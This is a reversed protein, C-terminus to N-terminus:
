GGFLDGTPWNTVADAAAHLLGDIQGYTNGTPDSIDDRQNFLVVWNAGDNRRVMLTFTGPLSGDHWTNLGAGATRVAWGLGYWSGNATVGTAPVAFIQDVTANTLLPYGSTADFIRAFRALDPATSLWGGHADMNELNFGGYPEMVNLPAGPQRMNQYLNPNSVYYSVEGAQRSEMQSAGLVTNLINLPALVDAQIFAAYTQQTVAEIIRGLLLYGYNSYNVMTGPAFDLSRGTMFTIIDQQGIPLAIGQAAAIQVDNFMPDFTTDRNWGGQHQLLHLVTIDNTRADAPTPLSILNVLNDTLNLRGQQVLLMIGASTLPKALSAIRFLSDPQVPDVDDYDWRYGRAYVLRSDKTVALAASSINHAQMFGQVTDDFSKLDPNADGAASWVRFKKIWVGAFYRTDAADYPEIVIPQYDHQSETVAQNFLDAPLWNHRGFWDPLGDKVWLAAFFPTGNIQYASVSYVRYGQGGWNDFESQYESSTLGHRAVWPLTSANDWVSIYFPSAGPVTGVPYGDVGEPRFGASIQSDVFSQYQASSANHIGQYADTSALWTAAFKPVGFDLYGSVSIPKFGTNAANTFEAQYRDSDINGFQYWASPNGDRVFIGSLTAAQNGYDAGSGNSVGQFWIARYGQGALQDFRAQYSGADLDMVLAHHPTQLQYPAAAQPAIGALNPPMFVQGTKKLLLRPSVLGVAALVGTRQLFKRRSIGSM